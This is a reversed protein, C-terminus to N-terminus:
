SAHTTGKEIQTLTVVGLPTEIGKATIKAPGLANNLVKSAEDYIYQVLERVSPQLDITQVPVDLTPKALDDSASGAAAKAMMDRLKESGINSFLLDVKRYGKIM